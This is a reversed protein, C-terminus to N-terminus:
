ILYFRSHLRSVPSEFQLFAFLAIM